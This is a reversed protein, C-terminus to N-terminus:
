RRAAVASRLGKEHVVADAKRQENEDTFVANYAVESGTGATTPVAVNALPARIETPFGRYTLAEGPNTALTALAKATDMASGGGMGIVCDAAPGNGTRVVHSVRDLYQYSPEFPERYELVVMAPFREQLAAVTTRLYTSADLAPGDVVLCPKCYGRLALEEPLAVAARVGYKLNTHLVLSNPPALTMTM